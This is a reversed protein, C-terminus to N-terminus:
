TQFTEAELRVGVPNPPKEAMLIREASKRYLEIGLSTVLALSDLAFRYNEKPSNTKGPDTLSDRFAQM